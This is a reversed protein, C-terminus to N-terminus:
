PNENLLVKYLEYYRNAVNDWSFIKRVIDLAFKSIKNRYSSDSLLHELAERLQESSGPNILIGNIGNIIVEPIGGVRSVIVPTGCSMAELITAPLGEFLSPLVYLYAASYFYPLLYRPVKGVFCIKGTIDFKSALYNLYNIYSQQGEGVLLLFWSKAQIKSLSKLLIDVGKRPEIRGVYLIINKNYITKRCKIQVIKEVINYAITKEIPRFFNTDVANPIFFVKHEINSSLETVLRKLSHSVTVIAKSDKILRKLSFYHQPAIFIFHLIKYFDLKHKLTEYDEYLPFGHVTTVIIPKRTAKASQRLFISEVHVNIIDYRKIIKNLTKYARMSFIWPDRLVSELPHPLTIPYFSINYKSILDDIEKTHRPKPALIGIAVGKNTLHKTLEKVYTAPGGVFDLPTQIVHLIKM